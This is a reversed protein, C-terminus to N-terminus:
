VMERSAIPRNKEFLDPRLTWRPVKEFSAREIAIAREASVKRFGWAAQFLTMLSPTAKQGMREVEQAVREAFVEKEPRSLRTMYRYLSGSPGEVYKALKIRKRPQLRKLRKELPSPEKM